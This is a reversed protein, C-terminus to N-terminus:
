LARNVVRDHEVRKVAHAIGGALGHEDDLATDRHLQAQM